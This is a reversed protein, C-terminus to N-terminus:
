ECLCWKHHKAIIYDNCYRVPTSFNFDFCVAHFKFVLTKSATKILQIPIESGEEIKRAKNLIDTMHLSVMLCQQIINKQTHQLRIHSFCDMFLLYGM